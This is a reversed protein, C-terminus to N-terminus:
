KFGFLRERLRELAEGAALAADSDDATTATELDPWLWTLEEAAIRYAADARIASEESHLGAAVESLAAREGLRALASVAARRTDADPDTRAVRLMKVVRDPDLPPWWGLSGVAAVRVEGGPSAAARLLARESEHCPHGRLAILVVAARAHDRPKRILRLALGALVPGAAASKSWRLARVADVWWVSRADPLHPFLATVDGKLEFLARLIAAQEESGAAVFRALLRDAAGALWATRHEGTAWLRMAQAEAKARADPPLRKTWHGLRRFVREAEIVALALWPDASEAKASVDALADGLGCRVVAALDITGDRAARATGVLARLAARGTPSAPQKLCEAFGAFAVAEAALQAGPPLGAAADACRLVAPLAATRNLRRLGAAVDVWYWSQEVPDASLPRSLQRELLEAAAPTGIETLARVQVAFGLGPRLEQEVDASQGAALLERFHAKTTECATEGLLGGAQLHRHQRDVAAVPRLVARRPLLWRRPRPRRCALWVLGGLTVLSFVLYTM